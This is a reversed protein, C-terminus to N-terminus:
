QAYWMEKGCYKCRIGQYVDEAERERGIDMWKHIGVACLIVHLYKMM